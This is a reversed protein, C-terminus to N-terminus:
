PRTGDASSRGVGLQILPPGGPAGPVESPDHFGLPHLGHVMLLHGILEDEALRIPDVPESAGALRELVRGFADGYLALLAELADLAVERSSEPLAEVAGLAAEVRRVRARARELEPREGATPHTVRAAAEAM